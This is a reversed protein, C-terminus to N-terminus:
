YQGSDIVKIPAFKTLISKVRETQAQVTTNNQSKPLLDTALDLPHLGLNTRATVEERRKQEASWEYHMYVPLFSPNTINQTALDIDMVAIGGILNEIPIQSNLFNGLSFWVLTQHGDKGNLVKAPQLVNPGSGIIIDTNIDALAQAIRDQDANIDPSNEAGWTINVIVIQANKNAEEIQEKATADNYINVGHPTTQANNSRTTYSLFAFKINKTEFYRIKNKEEENRNAGAVALITSQNDWYAVTPDIGAQGKDNIHDSGLNIVNCGLDALGKAFQPPANFSPFGTIGAVTGAAPVTENCIKVDAKDFIPKVQAFLPAYDYSGDPKKAANNVSDFTMNDGVAILRLSGTTKIEGLEQAAQNVTAAKRKAEQQEKYKYFGYGGGGAALLLIFIILFVKLKKRSRKVKPKKVEPLPRPEPKPPAQRRRPSEINAQMKKKPKARSPSLYAPIPRKPGSGRMGGRLRSRIDDDM